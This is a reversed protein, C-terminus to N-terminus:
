NVEKHSITNTKKNEERVPMLKMGCLTCMNNGRMYEEPSVKKEPHRICTYYLIENKIEPTKAMRAEKTANFIIVSVNIALIVLLVAILLKNDKM